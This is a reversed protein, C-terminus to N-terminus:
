GASLPAGEGTPARQPEVLAALRELSERWGQENQARDLAPPLRDHVAVLHTGGDSESLSITIQMEGRMGPDETEFEDVEVVLWGPMLRVFRGHYTDTHTNTKGAPEPSDYTLSIRFRGGERADFEHVVCTMDQPVKWRPIADPDVLARYVAAPPAAIERTVRTATM